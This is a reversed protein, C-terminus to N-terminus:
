GTVDLLWRWVIKQGVLILWWLFLSVPVWVLILMRLTQRDM